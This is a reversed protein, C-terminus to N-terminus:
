KTLMYQVCSEREARPYHTCSRIANTWQEREARRERLLQQEKERIITRRSRRHANLDNERKQVPTNKYYTTRIQEQNEMRKDLSRRSERLINQGYEYRKWFKQDYRQLRHNIQEVREFQKKTNNICRRLQFVASGVLPETQTYGLRSRCHRTLAEQSPVSASVHFVPISPLLGFTLISIALLRKM